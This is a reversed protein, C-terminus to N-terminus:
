PRPSRIPTFAIAANFLKGALFPVEDMRFRLLLPDMPELDVSESISGVKQFDGGLRSVEAKYHADAPLRGWRAIQDRTKPEGECDWCVGDVEVAVHGVPKGHGLLFSNFGGVYRGRGAFLALNIAVAAQACDGGTGRIGAESIVEAIAAVQEDRPLDGISREFSSVEPVPVFM